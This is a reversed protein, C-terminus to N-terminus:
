LHTYMLTNTHIYVCKYIYNCLLTISSTNPQTIYTHIYTCYPIDVLM